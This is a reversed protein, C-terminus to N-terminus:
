RVDGKTLLDVVQSPYLKWGAVFINAHDVAAWLNTIPDFYHTVSITGRFTGQLSLSASVIHTQIAQKFLDANVSNWNGTVGFDPAHGSFEHQLSRSGFGCPNNM